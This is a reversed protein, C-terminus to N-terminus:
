NIVQLLETVYDRYKTKLDTVTQNLAEDTEITDEIAEITKIAVNMYQEIDESSITQVLWLVNTNLILWDSALIYRSWTLWLTPWHKDREESDLNVQNAAM